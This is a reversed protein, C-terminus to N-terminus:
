EMHKNAMEIAEKVFDRNLNKAVKEAPQKEKIIILLNQSNKTYEQYFDKTLCRQFTQLHKM